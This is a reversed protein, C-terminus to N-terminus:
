EEKNCKIKDKKIDDNSLSLDSFGDSDKNDSLLKFKNDIKNNKDYITNEYKRDDKLNSQSKRQM